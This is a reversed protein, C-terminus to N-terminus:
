GNIKTRLVKKMYCGNDFHLICELCGVCKEEDIQYCVSYPNVEGPANNEVKIASYKCVSSCASCSICMQYKTIQAKIYPELMHKNKLPGIYNIISVRLKNQGIKGTLKLLPISDKRNLIYVEGLRENGMIRDIKGFPKFLEYFSNTIPKTLEFNYANEELVCEKIELVANKSYALGNGGQRAKWNGSDIYKKWDEKGINKAFDYLLTKFAKSQEPMYIKALYEAWSSNNPCCWCGVRSFGKQYAKNFDLNKSLIYLWVDFDMWDIIPQVVVQKTIKPSISIREYKNRSSSESRRIGHFAIVKTKGKFLIEILRNIAGTKFVTCCWRLVRSPPGVKRCLDSFDQDKNKAILIPTKHHIKKFRNLYESSDPYELTTDGYVHLIKETGLADMVLNSVVTSDKGGSFSVFMSSLDFGEINSKIFSIAEYEITNVHACNVEVAKKMWKLSPFTNEDTNNVESYKELLVIVDQLDRTKIIEDLRIKVKKGDIIYAGGGTAWVSSWVYKMPSNLLIEVLLRETPFVPRIDTAIHHCKSQCCDCTENVSPVNCTDCWYIESGTEVARNGCIPCISTSCELNDCIPCIYKHM